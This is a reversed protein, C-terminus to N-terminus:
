VSIIMASRLKRLNVLVIVAATPIFVTAYELDEYRELITRDEELELVTFRAAHVGIVM